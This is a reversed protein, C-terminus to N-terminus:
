NRAPLIYSQLWATSKRSDTATDFDTLTVSSGDVIINRPSVDGHVLGVEHLQALADCM